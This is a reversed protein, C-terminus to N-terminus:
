RIARPRLSRSASCREAIPRPILDLVQREVTITECDVYQFHFVEELAATIDEKSIVGRGLLIEGLHISKNQQDAIIQQLDTTSIKGREQLVEGLKKRKM